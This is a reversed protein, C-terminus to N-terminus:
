WYRRILQWILPLLMCLGGIRYFLRNIRRQNASLPETFLNTPHQNGVFSFGIALIGLFGIVLIEKSMRINESGGSGALRM